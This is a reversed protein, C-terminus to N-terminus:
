MISCGKTLQGVLGSSGGSEQTKRSEEALLAADSRKALYGRLAVYGNMLGNPLASYSLITVFRADLSAFATKIHGQTDLMYRLQLFQWWLFLM